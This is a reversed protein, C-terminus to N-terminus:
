HERVQFGSAGQTRNRPILWSQRPCARSSAGSQGQPEQGAGDGGTPAGRQEQAALDCRAKSALGQGVPKEGLLAGETTRGGGRSDKLHSAFSAELYCAPRQLSARKRGSERPRRGPQDPDPTRPESSTSGKPTPCM